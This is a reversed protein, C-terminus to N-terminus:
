AMGGSQEFDLVAEIRYRYLRGIKVAPIEGRRTWEYITSAKIQWRDALEEATLLRDVEASL